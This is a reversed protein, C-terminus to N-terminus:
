SMGVEHRRGVQHQFEAVPDAHQRRGVALLLDPAVEAVRDLRRGFEAVDREPEAHDPRGARASESERNGPTPTTVSPMPPPGSITASMRPLSRRVPGMSQVMGSGALM